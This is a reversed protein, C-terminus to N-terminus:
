GKGNGYACIHVTISITRVKKVATKEASHLSCSTPAKAMQKAAHRPKQLMFKAAASISIGKPSSRFSTSKSLTMAIKLRFSRVSRSGAECVGGACWGSSSITGPGCIGNCPSLGHLERFTCLTCQVHTSVCATADDNNTSFPRLSWTAPLLVGFVVPSTTRVTDIHLLSASDLSVGSVSSRCRLLPRPWGNADCALGARSSEAAATAEKAWDLSVGSFSSRLRLLLRPLANADSALITCTSEAAAMFKGRCKRSRGNLGVSALVTCTSEAAAM